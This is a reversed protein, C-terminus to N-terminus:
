FDIDVQLSDLFKNFSTFVEMVGLAEVIEADSAGVQRLMDFEPDSIRLPDRNAKRAFSILAKEKASFDAKAIDTEIRGVEEDSVGISKLAGKHAAVCYQCANGKSVLVAITQKTKPSLSGQMMVAKVKNWNAELLPPYRAYAKFLNPVMGFAM